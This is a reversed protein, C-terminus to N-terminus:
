KDDSVKSFSKFLKKLNEEAIGIGTDKVYIKILNNIKRSVKVTIGGTNTFKLSNGIL